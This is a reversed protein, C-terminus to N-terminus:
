YNATKGISACLQAWEDKAVEYPLYSKEKEVADTLSPEPLHEGDVSLVTHVPGHHGMRSVREEQYVGVEVREFIAEVAQDQQSGSHSSSGGFDWQGWPTWLKNPSGYYMELFLGNDTQKFFPNVGGARQDQMWPKVRNTGRVDPTFHEFVIGSINWAATVLQLKQDQTLQPNEAKM